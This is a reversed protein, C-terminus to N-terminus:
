LRYSGPTRSWMSTTPGHGSWYRKSVQQELKSYACIGAVCPTSSKLHTLFDVWFLAPSWKTLRLLLQSPLPAVNWVDGPYRVVEQTNGGGGGLYAHLVVLQVHASDSVPLNGLGVVHASVQLFGGGGLYAHLLVVQVHASAAFPLKLEGLVHAASHLFGTGGLYAQSEVVQVHATDVLPM